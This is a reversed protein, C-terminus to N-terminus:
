QTKSFRGTVPYSPDTFGHTSQHGPPVLEEVLAEIFNVGADRASAIIEGSGAEVTQDGSMMAGLCLPSVKLGSHGLRRYEM